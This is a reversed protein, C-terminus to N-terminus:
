PGISFEHRLATDGAGTRLRFLRVPREHDGVQVGRSLGHVQQQLDGVMGEAFTANRLGHKQPRWCCQLSALYVYPTRGQKKGAAQQKHPAM